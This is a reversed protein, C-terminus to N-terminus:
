SSVCRYSFQMDIVDGAAWTFPASATVNGYQAYQTSAMLVYPGVGATLKRAVGLMETQTSADRLMVTGAFWETSNSEATVPLSYGPQGSLNAGTMVHRIQVDVQDGQRRYSGTVTGGTVGSTTPSYDTWDQFVVKWGSATRQYIRGTDTETFLWGARAQSPSLQVREASTIPRAGSRIALNAVAQFDEVTSPTSNFTLSGDANQVHGM